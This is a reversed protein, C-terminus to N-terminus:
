NLLMMKRTKVYEGAKLRYFYVGSAVPRGADNTGDWLYTHNGALQRGSLALRVRQGLVNYISLQVDVPTPLAYRITTSPNFPNPYNQALVFDTPLPAEEIGVPATDVVIADGPLNPKNTIIRFITGVEPMVADLNDPFNPDDVSGGNWNVLTVRALVEPSSFDYNGALGDTVFQQYGADGPSTDLPNRFYIWDLYPDDTDGSVAHDIPNINFVLSGTIFDYDNLVWPIMRYDDSADDPTDHGINWIEFPVKGMEGTEFVWNAYGSDSTFRIEYDNPIARSSNDNRLVRELFTSYLSRNPGGTHIGWTSGNTQQRSADPRDNVGPTLPEGDHTPFGNNNFAFAGQTPPDIPGDANAVTQFALFGIPTKKVQFMIGDVIPHPFDPDDTLVQDSLIIENQTLNRLLWRKEDPLSGETFDIRYRDGTIQNVDAVIPFTNRGTGIIPNVALTDLWVSPATWPTIPLKFAGISRHGDFELIYHQELSDGVQPAVNIFVLQPDRYVAGPELSTIYIPLPSVNLKEITHTPDANRVSFAIHVTEGPNATKDQPGNEWLIEIDVLEPAPRLSINKLAGDLIINDGQRQYAFSADYLDQQNEVVLTQSGWIGDNAQGDNHLGDDFFSMSFGEDDDEQPYFQLSASAVGDVPRFDAVYQLTTEEPGSSNNATIAPIFVQNRYLDRTRDVKARLDQIAQLRRGFPANGGVLAWVVEQTDGNAIAFPGTSIIFRRDGPPIADVDGNNGNPDTVPDGSLMWRTPQGVNPGTGVYNPSPNEIDFTPSYGRLWNYWAQTGEYIGQPPDSPGAGAAMYVFSSAQINKHNLKTRFDFQATDGTSPVIPGQLLTYGAALEPFIIGSGFGGSEYVYGMSRLSDSGALNESFDVLDPDTWQTLYMDDIALSSKNILRVRKFLVDDSLATHQIWYTYQAEIGLPPAGAFAAMNTIDLDNTVFWILQKFGPIGPQDISPTWVGNRDIDIYPAGIDAPWNDWDYQYQNRLAEIEAATVEGIRKGLSEAADRALDGNSATALDSRIRYIRVEPHDPTQAIGPAIIRGPTMGSIYTSGGVRLPIQSTSDGVFGGWVFGDQFIAGLPTPFPYFGGVTGLPSRGSRGDHHVWYIWKNMNLLAQTSRDAKASPKFEIQKSKTQATALFSFLLLPLLLHCPFANQLRRQAAPPSLQENNTLRQGGNTSRPTYNPTTHM